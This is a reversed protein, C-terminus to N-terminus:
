VISEFDFLIQELILEDASIFPDSLQWVSELVLWKVTGLDEEFEKLFAEFDPEFFLELFEFASCVQEGQLDTGAGCIEVILDDETGFDLEM